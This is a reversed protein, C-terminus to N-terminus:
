VRLIEAIDGVILGKLTLLNIRAENLPAVM